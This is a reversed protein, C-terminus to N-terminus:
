TNQLHPFFIKLYTPLNSDPYTSKACIEWWYDVDVDGQDGMNEAAVDYCTLCM